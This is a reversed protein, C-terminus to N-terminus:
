KSKNIIKIRRHNEGLSELHVEMCRPFPWEVLRQAWEIITVSKHNTWEELGIDEPSAELPLRYLDIHHVPPQTPYHRVL